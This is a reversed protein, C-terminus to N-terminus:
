IIDVINDRRDVISVFGFYNWLIWEIDSKRWYMSYFIIYIYGFLKYFGFGIFDINFIYGVDFM